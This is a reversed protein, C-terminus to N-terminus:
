NVLYGRLLQFHSFFNQYRMGNLQMSIFHLNIMYFCRTDKSRRTRWSDLSLFATPFFFSSRLYRIYEFGTDIPKKNIWTSTYAKFSINIFKIIFDTKKWVEQVGCAFMIHIKKEIDTRLGVGGWGQELGRLFNREDLRILRKYIQVNAEGNEVWPYEYYDSDIKKYDNINIGSIIMMDTFFLKM